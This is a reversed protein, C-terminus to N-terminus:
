ELHVKESNNIARLSQHGEKEEMKRVNEEMYKIM